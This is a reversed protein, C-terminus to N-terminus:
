LVSDLNYTSSDTLNRVEELEEDKISATVEAM